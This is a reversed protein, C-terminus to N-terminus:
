KRTRAYKKVIKEKELRTFRKIAAEHKIACRFYKYQKVYSLKVPGKGRLYKAGARGENHTKIRKELDNTYGTYYTGHKCKVIYVFFVAKRKM